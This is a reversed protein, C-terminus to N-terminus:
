SHIDKKSNKQIKISKRQNEKSKEISKMSKKSKFQNQIPKPPRFITFFRTKQLPQSFAQFHRFLPNKPGLPTGRNKSSKPIRPIEISKMSDKLRQIFSDMISHIIQNQNENTQKTKQNFFKKEKYTTTPRPPPHYSENQIRYFPIFKNYIYISIYIYTHNKTVWGFIHCNTHLHTYFTHIQTYKHPIRHSYTDIHTM